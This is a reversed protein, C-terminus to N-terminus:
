SPSSDIVVDGIWNRTRRELRSSEDEADFDTVTKTLDFGHSDDFTNVNVVAYTRGEIESQVVPAVGCQSCVLFDATATGFRYRSTLDPDGIRVELRAAPNSTWAAGHKRCFTCGCARSAIRTEGAPWHLAFRINGCHCSGAIASSNATSQATM